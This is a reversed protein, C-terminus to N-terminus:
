DLLERIEQLGKKVAFLEEEFNQKSKVTEENDRSDVKKKAGAITYNEQYLLKKIYIITEIDNRTYLRQNGSDKRPSLARFESEWFRLVHPELGTIKSVEGIKFYKKEPIPLTIQM